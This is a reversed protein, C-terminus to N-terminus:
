LEFDSARSGLEDRLREASLHQGAAAHILVYRADCLREMCPQGFRRSIESTVCDIAAFYEKRLRAKADLVALRARTSTQEFRAPQKAARPPKAPPQKLDFKEAADKSEEWISEFGVDSRLETLTQTLIKAAQKAGTASYHVSQLTRALEECPGFVAIAVNLEFVRELKGLIKEYGRMAAKRDDRVSGLNPPNRLTDSSSKRLKRLIKACIERSGDM